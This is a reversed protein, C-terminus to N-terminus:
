VERHKLGVKGVDNCTNRESEVRQGRQEDVATLGGIYPGVVHLVELVMEHLEFRVADLASAVPEVGFEGLFESGGDGVEEGLRM